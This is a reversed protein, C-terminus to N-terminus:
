IKNLKDFAIESQHLPNLKPRPGDNIFSKDERVQAVHFFYFSAGVSILTALVLLVAFYKSLRIMKM